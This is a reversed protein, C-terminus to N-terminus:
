LFSSLFSMESLFHKKNEAKSCGITTPNIQNIKIIRAISPIFREIKSLGCGFGLSM